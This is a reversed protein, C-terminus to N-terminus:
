HEEAQNEEEQQKEKKLQKDLRLKEAEEEELLFKQVKAFADAASQSLELEKVFFRQELADRTKTLLKQEAERYDLPLFIFFLINVPEKDPAEYNIKDKLKFFVGVPQQCGSIKCHPIAIGNGIATTGLQEREYLARFIDSMELKTDPFSQVLFRSCFELLRKKSGGTHNFLVRDQTLLQTTLM